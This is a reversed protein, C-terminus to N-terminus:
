TSTSQGAAPRSGADPVTSSVCPGGVVAVLQRQQELDRRNIRAPGGVAGSRALFALESRRSVGAKKFVAALTNRVTNASIGLLGATEENTLGRVVYAMVRQQAPTLSWAPGMGAVTADAHEDNARWAVARLAARLHPFLADLQARTRGSFSAGGRALGIFWVRGDMALYRIMGAALRSPLMFERYISMRDRRRAHFVDTDLAFGSGLRQTEEPTAEGMFRWNNRRVVSTDGKEVATSWPEAPAASQITGVDFDVLDDLASVIRAYMMSASVSASVAEAIEGSARWVAPDLSLPGDGKRVTM